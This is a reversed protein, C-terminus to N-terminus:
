HNERRRWWVVINFMGIILAAYTLYTAPRVAWRFREIAVFGALGLYFAGLLAAGFLLLVYGAAIEVKLVGDLVDSPASM